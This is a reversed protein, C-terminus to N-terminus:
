KTFKNLINQKITKEDYNTAIIHINKSDNTSIRDRVKFSYSYDYEDIIYNAYLRSTFDDKNIIIMNNSSSKSFWNFLRIHEDRNFSSDPNYKNFITTYPPDLFVFDGDTATELAKEFDVNLIDTNDLLNDYDDGWEINKLKKYWGFPVNFKGSSNHRIMGGFALQRLVWFQIAKEMLDDFDNDRYYYYIKGLTNNFEDKPIDNYYFKNYNNAIERIRNILVTRNEKLQVYFNYVGFDIDNIVSKTHNLDLWVAGGGVFPEYFTNIKDPIYRRIIPLEKTKGGAWKFFPKM